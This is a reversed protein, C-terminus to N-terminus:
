LWRRTRSKYALYAEGFQQTLYREERLVVGWHMILLLPILLFFPWLSNGLLAIALYLGTMAVYVPNRSLRFPGDTALAVSPKRPSASTGTKKMAVFAWRAFTGSLLLLVFGFVRLTPTPLPIPKPTAAHVVFALVLASVYLLPPPAIVGASQRQATKM